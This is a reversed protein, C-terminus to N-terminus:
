RSPSIVGGGGGAGGGAGAGGAGAGGPAGAPGGAVSAATAAGFTGGTTAQGQNGGAAVVASVVVTNPMGAAAAAAAVLASANNLLAPPTITGATIASNVVAYLAGIFAPTAPTEANWGGAPVIGAATLAAIAREASTSDLGLQKALQVAVDGQTVQAQAMAPGSTLILVGVVFIFVMLGVWVYRKAKM